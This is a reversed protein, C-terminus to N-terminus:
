RLVVLNTVNCDNLKGQPNVFGMNFSSISKEGKTRVREYLTRSTQGLFTGSPAIMTCTLTIDKIAWPLDNKIIADIRLLGHFDSSWAISKLSVFRIPREEEDRKREFQQM